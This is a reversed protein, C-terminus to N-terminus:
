EVITSPFILRIEYRVGKADSARVGYQGYTIAGAPLDIELTKENGGQVTLSDTVNGDADFFQLEYEGEEVSLSVLAKTDPRGVKVRERVAENWMSTPFPEGVPREDWFFNTSAGNASGISKTILWERGGDYEVQYSIGTECYAATVLVGFIIFGIVLVLPKM